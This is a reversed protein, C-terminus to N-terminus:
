FSTWIGGLYYRRLRYLFYSLGEDRRSAFRNISFIFWVSESYFGGIAGIASIFGLAAATDTAAERMAREDSGGEAKVRDMTLKRFIVSIMQFTSGSGLGATLFLALFVGYFAIFSGGVGGTPLTLFLLGSFIAMLVFNILTVRTGWVTLFQAAQRVHWRASLRVSFRM